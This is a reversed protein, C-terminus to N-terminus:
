KKQNEGLSKKKAFQHKFIGQVQAWSLGEERSVQQINTAKVKEFIYEEYRKTYRREWEVFDLRETFYKQCKKCYFQRRPAKLYVLYSFVSLDRVLSPRNRKLEESPTQCDPCNCQENLLGLTLTVTNDQIQCSEITTLPLNLLRELHLDMVARM